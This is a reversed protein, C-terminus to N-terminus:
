SNKMWLWTKCVGQFLDVEAKWGLKQEAKSVDLVVNPVDYARGHKFMPEMICDAVGLSVKLVDLISHGIGSGANLVGCYDSAGAKACLRALDAVYIFDRVVSGDGWIKIQEGLMINQLFTGIVGQVGSHGQREGYPNSARLIIPKLEYLSQFMFLYNEIAVKVAGYSCIPRLPHTEPIPSVDPNGYVTGGSSLFVIRSVGKQVMLQFLRVSNILNGQIDSVPDLNSTSPVTTSILHYVIDVGEIAEALAPVDGFDSLRYDVGELPPRYLEANRDFVRVKQGALVLADVLHSGIFGNGGIVLARVQASM